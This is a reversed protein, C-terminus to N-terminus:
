LKDTHCVPLWPSETHYGHSIPSETHYCDIVTQRHSLCPSMPIRHSLWSLNTIRHSLLRSCNTQTVFLSGHLNQTIDMLSLIPFETHYGIIVTQRHSLCPAMPIRHSLCSLNTIRHSLLRSCNTQTVFLSGHPNQTIAM